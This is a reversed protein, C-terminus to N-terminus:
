LVQVDIERISFGEEEQSQSSFLWEVPVEQAADASIGREGEVIIVGIREVM